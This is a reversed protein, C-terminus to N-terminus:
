LIRKQLIVNVGCCKPLTLFLDDDQNFIYFELNVALMLCLKTLMLGFVCDKGTSKNVLCLGVCSEPHLDGIDFDQM